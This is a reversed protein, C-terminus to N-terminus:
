DTTGHARASDAFMEKILEYLRHNEPFDGMEIIDRLEGRDFWLGDNKPCVDLLVKKDDGVTVKDLHKDCIPCRIHEEKGTTHSTLSAMLASKNTAGDLLLELEGGDLWAGGCAVCHDIEVSEVEVVILPEECTPCRV